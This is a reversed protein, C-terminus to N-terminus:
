YHGNKEANEILFVRPITLQYELSYTQEWYTIDNKVKQNRITQYDVYNDERFDCYHDYLYGNTHYKLPHSRLAFFPSIFSPIFFILSALDALMNRNPLNGIFTIIAANSARNHFLVLLEQPKGKPEIQLIAHQIKLV